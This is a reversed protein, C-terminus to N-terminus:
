PELPYIEDFWAKERRVQKVQKGLHCKVTNFSPSELGEWDEAAELETAWFVYDKGELFQRVAVARALGECRDWRAVEELKLTAITVCDGKHSQKPHLFFPEFLM